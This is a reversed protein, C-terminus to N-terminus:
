PVLMRVNERDPFFKVAFLTTLFSAAMGALLQGMLGVKGFEILLLRCGAPKQVLFIKQNGAFM